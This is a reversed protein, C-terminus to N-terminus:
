NRLGFWPRMRVGLSTGALAALIWLWGHLSTSAVGSFFAGINCGYAIRAGYGMALGGIVAAAAPRWPLALQPAFRGAAAAAGFAGVVIGIDTVSTVDQLVGGGLASRQFEANWFSTAGPDWGFLLAFKAGWLAFAWTI